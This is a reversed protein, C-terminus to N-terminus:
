DNSLDKTKKGRCFGRNFQQCVNRTPVDQKQTHTKLQKTKNNKTTENIIYFITNM